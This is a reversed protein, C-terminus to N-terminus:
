HKVQPLMDAPDTRAITGNAAIAGEKKSLVTEKEVTGTV